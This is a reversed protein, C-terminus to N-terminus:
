QVLVKKETIHNILFEKKQKLKTILSGDVRKRKRLKQIYNELENVDQELREFQATM